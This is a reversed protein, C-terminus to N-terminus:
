YRGYTRAVKIMKFINEEPTNMGCQDGTSLIFGGGEGADDIAKKAAQEVDAPTGKLMVGTTHLNGMLALRKGFTKKIEALNCDGMLPIELPNICNLDTENACIEVLVREKGCSHLMTPIDAEKALSTIGKLTKLGFERFLSPSSLSITGSSGTLIFDPKLELIMELMKIMRKHQLEYLECLKDKHDTYAYTVSELSGEFYSTWESFGPYFIGVGLIGSEGLESRMKELGKGNCSLPPEYLYQIKPFDKVIDKILKRTIAPPNDRFYTMEYDLAGAPTDATFNVIIRDNEKRKEKNWCIPHREEFVIGDMGYLFWGDFKFYKLAELYAKWLPPNNYLCIDWFPKKTLKCPIMCSIDPAVPVMDPKGNKIAILMREKSNM